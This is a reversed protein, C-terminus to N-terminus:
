PFPDEKNTARVIGARDPYYFNEEGANTSGLHVHGSM